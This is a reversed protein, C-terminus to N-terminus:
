NTPSTLFSSDIEVTTFIIRFFGAFVRNINKDVESLDSTPIKILSLKKLLELFLQDIMDVGHTKLITMTYNIITFFLDLREFEIQQLYPSAIMIFYPKVESGLLNVNRQLYSLILDSIVQNNLNSPLIQLVSELAKGFSEKM